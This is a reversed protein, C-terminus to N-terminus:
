LCAAAASPTWGFYRNLSRRSSRSSPHVGGGEAEETDEADEGPLCGRPVELLREGAEAAVDVRHEGVGVAADPGGDGALGRGLAAGADVVAASRRVGPLQAVLARGRGVERQVGGARALEVEAEVLGEAGEFRREQAEAGVPDVAQRRRGLAEIIELEQLDAVVGQGAVVLTPGATLVAGEPPQLAAGPRPRGRGERPRGAIRLALVVADGDIQEGLVVAEHEGGLAAAGAPVAARPPLDRAGVPALRQEEAVAAPEGEAVVGEEAVGGAAPHLERRLAVGRGGVREDAAAQDDIVAAGEAEGAVEDDVEAGGRPGAARGAEVDAQPRGRGGAACQPDEGVVADM